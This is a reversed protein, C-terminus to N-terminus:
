LGIVLGLAARLLCTSRMASEGSVRTDSTHWGRSMQLGGMRAGSGSDATSQELYFAEAGVDVSGPGLPLLQQVSAELHALLAAATTPRTTRPISPHGLLWRRM